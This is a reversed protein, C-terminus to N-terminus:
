SNLVLNDVFNVALAGILSSNGEVKTFEIKPPKVFEDYKEIKDVVSSLADKRKVGIGGGIIVIEPKLVCNINNIGAALYDTVEDWIPDVDKIDALSLKYHDELNGGGVYAELLGLTKNMEHKRGNYDIVMGCAEIPTIEIVSNKNSIYSGGLGTGMILHVVRKYSNIQGYMLEAIASCTSDQVIHVSTKYKDEFLNRIPKNEFDKINSGQLIQGHPTVVGPFSIGVGEIISPNFEQIYDFTERLWTDFSQSTSFVRSSELSGIEKSKYFGIETKTGGIDIAIYM